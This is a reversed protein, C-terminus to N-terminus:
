KDGSWTNKGPTGQTPIDVNGVPPHRLPLHLFLCDNLPTPTHRCTTSSENKKKGIKSKGAADRKTKQHRVNYRRTVASGKNQLSPSKEQTTCELCCLSYPVVTYQLRGRGIPQTYRCSNRRSNSLLTSLKPNISLYVFKRDSDSIDRQAKNDQLKKRSISDLGFSLYAPKCFFFSWYWLTVLYESGGSTLLKSTKNRHLGFSELLNHHAISQM